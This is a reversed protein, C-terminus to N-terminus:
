FVDKAKIIVPTKVKLLQVNFCIILNDFSWFSVTKIDRENLYKEVQESTVDTDASIPGTISALFVLLIRLTIKFNM